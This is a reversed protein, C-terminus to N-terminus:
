IPAVTSTPVGDEGNGLVRNDGFSVIAGDGRVSLGTGNDTIMMDSISVVGGSSSLVGVGNNNAESSQLALSIFDVMTAHARFGNTVNGNASSRAVTAWTEGEIRMGERNNELRVNEISVRASGGPFPRVLIGTGANNRIVSDLVFLKSAGSPEFSIGALTFNDITCNEVHLAAGGLFRIGNRGDGLGGLALGRLVVVATSPADVVIDDSGLVDAEFGEASITISKMIVVAGYGGPRLVNVVGGAATKAVAAAFTKCPKPLSCPNSDKGVPSVWTSMPQAAAPAAPISVVFALVLFSWAGSRRSPLRM